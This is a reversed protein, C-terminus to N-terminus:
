LNKKYIPEIVGLCVARGVAQSTTLANLKERSSRLHVEVTRPSISLIEGVDQQTRGAAVWQLIERERTSLAPYRLIDLVQESKMVMDHMYVAGLQLEALIKSKLLKWDRPALDVTVSFLGTEGFPGRIPITLGVDPLGFDRAQDFLTSTADFRHLRNWDVPAISRASGHLTPDCLHLQHAMYHTKWADPYTTFAAVKGSVPNASAYSAYQLEMRDCIRALYAVYDAEGRPTAALDILEM